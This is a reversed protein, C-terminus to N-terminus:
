CPTNNTTVATDYQLRDLLLTPLSPATASAHARLTFLDTLFNYYTSDYCEANTQGQDRWHRVATQLMVINATFSRRCQRPRELHVGRNRLQLLDYSQERLTYDKIVVTSYQLRDLLLIPLSPATASAPATLTFLEIVTSSYTM